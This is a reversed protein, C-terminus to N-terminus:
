KKPLSDRVRRFGDLVETAVQGLASVVQSASEEAADAVPEVKHMLDDLKKSHQELEDQVEKRGLHIKLRLEDRQQKLSSVLELLADKTRVM